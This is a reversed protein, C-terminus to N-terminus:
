SVGQYVILSHIADSVAPALQDPCADPLMPTADDQEGIIDAFLYRLSALLGDDDPVATGGPTM